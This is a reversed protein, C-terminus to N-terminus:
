RALDHRHSQRVSSECSICLLDQFAPIHGKQREPGQMMCIDCPNNMGDHLRAMDMGARRLRPVVQCSLGSVFNIQAHITQIGPVPKPGAPLPKDTFKRLVGNSVMGEAYPLRASDALQDGSM